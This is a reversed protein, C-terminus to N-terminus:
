CLGNKTYRDNSWCRYSFIRNGEVTTLFVAAWVKGNEISKWSYNGQKDPGVCETLDQIAAYYVTGRLSSKLIKYHEENGHRSFYADCEAKRDVRGNKYYNAEYSTWGM